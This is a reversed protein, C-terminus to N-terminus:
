ASQCGLPGRLGYSSVATCVIRHVRRTACTALRPMGALYLMVASCALRPRVLAESHGAHGLGLSPALAKQLFFFATFGLVVFFAALPWRDFGVDEQAELADPFLHM